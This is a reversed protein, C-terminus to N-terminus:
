AAGGGITVGQIPRKRLWDLHKLLATMGAHQNPAEPVGPVLWTTNDHALLSSGAILSRVAKAPGRAVAVAGDPIRRGFGIAGNAFCYAHM